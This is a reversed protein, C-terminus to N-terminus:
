AIAIANYCLRLGIGSPPVIEALSKEDIMQPTSAASIDDEQDLNDGEWWPLVDPLDEEAEEEGVASELM